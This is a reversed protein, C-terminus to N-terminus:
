EFDRRETREGTLLTKRPRLGRPIPLQSTTNVLVRTGKHEFRNFILPQKTKKM